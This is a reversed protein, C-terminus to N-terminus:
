SGVAIRCTQDPRGPGSYSVEDGTGSLSRESGTFVETETDRELPAPVERRIDRVSVVNEDSMIDIYLAGGDDCRYSASKVIMPPLAANGGDTGAYAENTANSPEPEAFENEQQQTDCSALLSAVAAAFPLCKFM